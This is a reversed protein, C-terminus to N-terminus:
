FNRTRLTGSHLNKAFDAKPTQKNKKGASEQMAFYKKADQVKRIIHTQLCGAVSDTAFIGTGTNSWAL